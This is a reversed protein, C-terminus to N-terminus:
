DSSRSEASPVRQSEGRAKKRVEKKLDSGKSRDHSSNDRIPSLPRKLGLIRKGKLPGSLVNCSGSQESQSVDSQIVRQMGKAKESLDGGQSSIAGEKSAYNSFPIKAPSKVRSLEEDVVGDGKMFNPNQSAEGARLWGGYM